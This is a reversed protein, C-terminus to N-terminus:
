DEHENSVFSVGPARKINMLTLFAYTSHMWYNLATVCLFGGHPHMSKQTTQSASFNTKRLRALRYKALTYLWLAVKWIVSIRVVFPHRCKYLTSCLVHQAPRNKDATSVCSCSSLLSMLVSYFAMAWATWQWQWGFFLQLPSVWM